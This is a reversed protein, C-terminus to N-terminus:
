AEAECLFGVIVRAVEVGPGTCVAQLLHQIGCELPFFYVAFGIGCFQQVCLVHIEIYAVIWLMGVEQVVVVIWFVYCWEKIFFILILIFVLLTFVFVLLTLIFFHHGLPERETIHGLQLIHFDDQFQSLVVEEFRNQFVVYRGLECYAQEVVILFSELEAAAIREVEVVVAAVQLYAFEM